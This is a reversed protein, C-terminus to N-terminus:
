GPHRGGATSVFAESREKRPWRQCRCRNRLYATLADLFGDDDATTDRTPAGAGESAEDAVAVLKMLAVCLQRDQLVSSIRRSFSGCLLQWENKLDDFPQHLMWLTRWKAGLERVNDTWKELAGETEGDPPWEQFLTSYAGTRKLLSLCLAFCDPPWQPFERNNAM